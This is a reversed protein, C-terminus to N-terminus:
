PSLLPPWAHALAHPFLVFLSLLLLSLQQQFPPREAGAVEVCAQQGMPQYGPQECDREVELPHQEGPLCHAEVEAM